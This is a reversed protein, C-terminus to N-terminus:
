AFVTGNLYDYRHEREELAEQLGAPLRIASNPNRMLVGRYQFRSRDSWGRTTLWAGVAKPRALLSQGVTDNLRDLDFRLADPALGTADLLILRGQSVGSLQDYEHKFKRALQEYGDAQVRPFVLCVWYNERVDENLHVQHLSGDPNPAKAVSRVIIDFADQDPAEGDGTRRVRIDGFEDAVTVDSQEGVFLGGAAKLTSQVAGYFDGPTQHSVRIEVTVSFPVDVYKKVLPMVFQILDQPRTSFVDSPFSACEAIIEIGDKSASFDAFGQPIAPELSVDAGATKWRYAMAIEFLTPTYKDSSRLSALADAIRPDSQFERLYLAIEAVEVMGQDTSGRLARFLPHGHSLRYTPKKSAADQQDLWEVGLASCVLSHDDCLRQYTLGLAPARDLAAEYWLEFMEPARKPTCALRGITPWKM